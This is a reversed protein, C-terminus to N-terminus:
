WDGGFDDCGGPLYDEDVGFGASALASENDGDMSDEDCLGCVCYAEPEGCGPCLDDDDYHELDDGCGCCPWDEHGCSM